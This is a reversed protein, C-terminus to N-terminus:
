TIIRLFWSSVQWQPILNKQFQLCSQTTQSNWNRPVVKEFLSLEGRDFKSQEKLRKTKKHALEPMASLRTPPSIELVGVKKKLPRPKKLAADTDKRSSSLTSTKQKESSILHKKLSSTPQVQNSRGNSKGVIRADLQGANSNKSPYQKAPLPGVRM